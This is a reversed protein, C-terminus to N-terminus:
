KLRIRISEKVHANFHNLALPKLIEVIYYSIFVIFESKRINSNFWNYLQQYLGTNDNLWYMFRSYIADTHKKAHKVCKVDYTATIYIKFKKISDYLEIYRSISPDLTIDQEHNLEIYKKRSIQQMKCVIIFCSETNYQMAFKLALNKSHLKSQNTAFSLAVPIKTRNHIRGWIFAHWSYIYPFDVMNYTVNDLLKSSMQYKQNVYCVRMAYLQNINRIVSLKSTRYVTNDSFIIKM